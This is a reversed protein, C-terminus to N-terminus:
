ECHAVSSVQRHFRTGSFQIVDARKYPRSSSYGVEVLEGNIFIELKLDKGSLLPMDKKEKQYFKTLDVTICLALQNSLDDTPNNPQKRTTSPEAATAATQDHTTGKKTKKRRSGSVKSKKRSTSYEPPVLRSPTIDSQSALSTPEVNTSALDRDVVAGQDEPKKDSAEVLMFVMDQDRGLFQLVGVEPNNPGIPREKLARGDSLQSQIRKANEQHLAGMRFDIENSLTQDLDSVTLTAAIGLSHYRPMASPSHLRNRRNRSGTSPQRLTVLHATTVVTSAYPFTQTQSLSSRAKIHGAQKHVRTLLLGAGAVILQSVYITTRGASAHKCNHAKLQLAIVSVFM